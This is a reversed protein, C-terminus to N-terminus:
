GSTVTMYLTVKRYWTSHSVYVLGVSVLGPKWSKRGCGSLFCGLREEKKEQPWGSTLFSSTLFTVMPLSYTGLVMAEWFPFWVEGRLCGFQTLSEHLWIDLSLTLTFASSSHSPFGLFSFFPFLLWLSVVTFFLTSSHHSRSLPLMVSGLLILSLRHNCPLDSTLGGSHWGLDM